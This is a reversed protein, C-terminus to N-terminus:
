NRKKQIPLMTRIAGTTSCIWMEQSVGWSTMEFRIVWILDGSDAFGPINVGIRLLGVVKLTERADLPGSHGFAM